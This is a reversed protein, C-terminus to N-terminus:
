TESCSRASWHHGVAGRRFTDWFVLAKVARGHMLNTLSAPSKSTMLKNVLVGNLLDWLSPRSVMAASKITALNELIIYPLPYSLKMSLDRMLKNIQLFFNTGPSYNTNPPLSGWVMPLNAGRSCYAYGSNPNDTFYEKTSSVYLTHLTVIQLVRLIHLNESPGWRSLKFM